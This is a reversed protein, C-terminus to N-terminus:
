GEALPANNFKREPDVINLIHKYAHIIDLYSSQASNDENAKLGYHNIRSVLFSIFNDKANGTNNIVKLFSKLEPLSIKGDNKGDLHDFYNLIEIAVRSPTNELSFIKNIIKIGANQNNQVKLDIINAKSLKSLWFDLKNNWANNEIISM